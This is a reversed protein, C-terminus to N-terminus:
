IAIGCNINGNTILIKDELCKKDKWCLFSVNKNYYGGCIIVDKNLKILKM